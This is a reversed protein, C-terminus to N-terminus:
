IIPLLQLLSSQPSWLLPTSLNMVEWPLRAAPTRNFQDDILEPNFKGWHPNLIRYSLEYENPVTGEFTGTSVLAGGTISGTAPGSYPNQAMLDVICFTEIFLLVLLITFLNKM